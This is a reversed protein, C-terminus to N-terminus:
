DLRDPILSEEKASVCGDHGTRASSTMGHVPALLKLPFSFALFMAPATPIHFDRKPSKWPRHAVTPFEIDLRLERLQSVLTKWPRGSGPMEVASKM